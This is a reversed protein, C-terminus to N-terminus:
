IGEFIVTVIKRSAKILKVDLKNPFERLCTDFASKTNITAKNINKTSSVSYCTETSGGYGTFDIEDEKIVLYDDKLKAIYQNPMKPPHLIKSLTKSKILRSM